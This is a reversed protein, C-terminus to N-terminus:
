FVVYHFNHPLILFFWLMISIINNNYSCIHKWVHQYKLVFDHRNDIVKTKNKRNPFINTLFCIKVSKKSYNMTLFSMFVYGIWYKCIVNTKPM